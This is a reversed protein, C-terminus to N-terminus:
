RCSSVMFVKGEDLSNLVDDALPIHLQGLISFNNLSQYNVTIGVEGSKNQSTGLPSSYPSAPHPLLGANLYEDLLTDVQEGLYPQYFVHCPWHLALPYWPKLPLFSCSDYDTQHKSFLDLIGGARLTTLSSFPRQHKVLIRLLFAIARLHSDLRNWVHTFSAWQARNLRDLLAAFSQDSVSVTPESPDSTM